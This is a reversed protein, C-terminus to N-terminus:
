KINLHSNYIAGTNDDIDIDQINVFSRFGIM